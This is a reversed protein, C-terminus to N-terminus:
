SPTRWRMAEAPDIGVKELETRLADQYGQWNEPHNQQMLQLALMRGNGSVVRRPYKKSTLPAGDRFQRFFELLWGFNPQSATKRVQEMSIVGGRGERPQLDEPYERRKEGSLDHSPIIADLERLVPRVRHETVGDSQYGVTETGVRTDPVEPEAQRQRLEEVAPAIQELVKTKLADAEAQTLTRNEVLASVIEGTVSEVEAEADQELVELVENQVEADLGVWDRTELDETPTQTSADPVTESTEGPTEPPVDSDMEVDPQEGLIETRYDAEDLALAKEMAARVAAERTPYSENGLLPQGTAAEIAIWANTQPHHTIFINAYDIGTGEVSYGEVDLLSGDQVRVGVTNKQYNINPLAAEILQDIEASRVEAAENEARAIPLM